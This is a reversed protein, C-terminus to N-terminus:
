PGPGPWLEEAPRGLVKSLTARLEFPAFPKTVYHRVGLARARVREATDTMVTTVVVPLDRFREERRLEELLDLGTGHPLMLDLLLLDPHTHRLFELADEAAGALALTCHESNLLLRILAGIDADDEVCLITVSDAM